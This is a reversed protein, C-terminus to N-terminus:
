HRIQHHRHHQVPAPNPPISYLGFNDIAWDWSDTGAQVFRFRVNNQGDAQPVRYKEFRHSESQNDDIRGQIYPALTSWLSQDVGIFAGYNNGMGTTQCYAVDTHFVALTNSADISGDLNTIIDIGGIPDTLPGYYAPLMYLIPLWTTGQNISYELAGLSDGNATFMSGFAVYINTKGSLDYDRTFLYNIQSGSRGDSVAMAVNNSGLVSVPIGDVVIPGNVNLINPGWNIYNPNAADTIDIVVWDLYTDSRENFLDWTGAASSPDTCNNATWGTPYVTPPNNTALPLEDFTELYLPPGLYINSWAAITYVSAQSLQHPTPSADDSFTIKNTHTTLPAFLFPQTYTVTNTSGSSVLTFPVSSGDVFLKLTNTNVGSEQNMIVVTSPIDPLVTTSGNAPAFKLIIPTNVNPVNYLNTGLQAYNYINAVEVDTLPRNWFGVDDIKANIVGSDGGATPPPPLSVSDNYAGTGDEGINVAFPEGLGNFLTDTDTGGTIPNAASELLNGDLYINRSVGATFTVTILHWNGDSVIESRTGAIRQSTNVSDTMQVRFNGGGQFFIGWGPNASAWWNKNAIMAPDGTNNTNNIWFSVSWDGTGFKLDNPYGLTVFDILSADVATTFQFASALKGAVYTPASPQTVLGNSGVYTGNNGRGSDDALNNDFNLHVVLGNTINRPQAQATVIFGLCM